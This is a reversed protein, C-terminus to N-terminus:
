IKDHDFLLQFKRKYVTHKDKIALLELEDYEKNLMNLYAALDKDPYKVIYKSTM